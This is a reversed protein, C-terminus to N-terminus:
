RQILQMRMGYRPRLTIRPLMEVKHSKVHQLKWRRSITALLLVGEMWAFPEGVCSRPGGGFPFYAFKPLKEKMSATWRDPDFKNANEFFRPDMHTVFQSIVVGSGKPIFYGGVTTDQLAQRVLIWAPPYLRMSKTFVKNTYELREFDSAMPLRDKGIISDVEAHMKTEVSPNQSLLFWTWTLANATTEHGAAFLILVEDRLQSDSMGAGSEDKASLLMSLLDGEDKESIRRKEILDYMMKDIRKLALDYKRNTPLKQLIRAFPSSLRSFYNIMLTLDKTLTKSESEIDANFLCKAVIRMTLREMESHIDLMEGDKWESTVQDAFEVMTKAYSVIREHHFAPQVLRRERHHFNGESTLLGEGFVKKTRQLFEGKIYDRQKTVLVEQIMNPNTILYFNSIGVKVHVIDQFSQLKAVNRILFGGVPVITITPVTKREPAQSQAKSERATVQALKKNQGVKRM